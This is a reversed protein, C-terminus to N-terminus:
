RMPTGSLFMDCAAFFDNAADFQPMAGSHLKVLQWNGKALVTDAGGYDTFDGRDGHVFLVPLTLSEYVWDIDASFMSGSLFTFPAHTAGPQHATQYAYELLGRDVADRDGFTKALFYEQSKRSNLASFLLDGSIPADLVTRLKPLGRRSEPPGYFDQGKGFGTPSILVARAFREPAESIARAVFESSLSLGIIIVPQEGHDQGIQALMDHIADTMLRPSYDRESRESFGYGPLDLAYVHHTHRYQEFIPRMEYASAAANISHVLLLPAGSGAVYYSIQGARGTIEHREADLAPPLPVPEAMRARLGLGVVGAGIAGLVWRGLARPSTNQTTM